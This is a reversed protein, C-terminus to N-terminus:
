APDIRFHGPASSPDGVLEARPGLAAMLPEAVRAMEPECTAVIRASLTDSLLARHLARTMEIAVRWETGDRALREELPTRRWPLALQLVGFRNVPGFVIDKDAGFATRADALIAAGDHGMGILDVAVLGGWGKLRILRAAEILGRRNALDRARGGKGRGAGPALDIDVAILARTRQVCLDLGIDGFLGGDRLAEEEADLGAQLAALGRMPQQGPVLVALWQEVSLGEALLRPEGEGTGLRRLTPGKSERPEASVEVEVKQGVTLPAGPGFPLFGLPPGVGLDVFAGKLGPQVDAIRGVCRAGLRHQPVDRDSQIILHEFRGDRVVIGRTEGPTDDLFVEIGSM